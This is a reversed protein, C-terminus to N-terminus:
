WAVRCSPDRCDAMIAGGIGYCRRVICTFIPVTTTFYVKFLETGWKMMGSKEAVTGVAFGPIDILQIIPLGFVDCLKLHKSLKNSGASDLAGSNSMADNAIIGVPFGGIRALGICITKGWGPGIEFFSNKDVLPEIIDRVKYLRQRRRPIITRLEPCSRKPDDIPPSVPPMAGGHNPLYSLFTAIQEYCGKEDPALNDITGNSCHIWAGGLDDFSFYPTLKTVFLM